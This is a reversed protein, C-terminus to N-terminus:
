VTRRLKGQYKFDNSNITVPIAKHKFLALFVGLMYVSINLFKPKTYVTEYIVEASFGFSNINIFYRQEILKEEQFVKTLGVDHAAFRGKLFGDVTDLYDKPYHHTRAWDNGRGHPIVAMEKTCNTDSIISTSNPLLKLGINWVRITKPM